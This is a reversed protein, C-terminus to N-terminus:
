EILCKMVVRCAYQKENEEKVANLDRKIEVRLAASLKDDNAM